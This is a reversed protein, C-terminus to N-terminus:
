ENMTGASEAHRVRYRIFLLMAVLILSIGGVIVLRDLYSARVEITTEDVLLDGAVLEVDLAGALSSELDVSITFFNDQPRVVVVQPESEPISMNSARARIELTLTKDSNNVVSMPVDGKASSLTIPQAAIHVADFVGSSIRQAASSFARGRDASSWRDDPGSWSGSAALLSADEAARADEDAQGLASVLATAGLRALGVQEWYDGPATSGSAADPLTLEGDPSVEAADGATVPRAWPVAALRRFIGALDEARSPRGPGFEILTILPAQNEESISREFLLRTFAEIDANRVATTTGRDLLLATMSAGAPTDAIRYVGSPPTEEASALAAPSLIAYDMDRAALAPIADAALWAGYTLTGAAASTELTARFGSAAREYDAELDTLRDMVALGDIDPAGYGADVLELRETALADRLLELTAIADRSVESDEEFRRVGEPGTTEYGQGLRAWEELLFSPIAISLRVDPDELVLRAIDAAHERTDDYRSPDVAFRGEPDTSPPADIRAVIAIPVRDPASAHVLLVDEVVWERVTGDADSRVRVEIPYAAPELTLDSLPRSYTVEVTGTTVENRVETKQYLLRGGPHRVQVRSELYSTPADILVKVTLDFRGDVPVSVTPKTVTVVPQGPAAPREGSTTSQGWASGIGASLLM